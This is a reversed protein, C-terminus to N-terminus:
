RVSRQPTQLKDAAERKQARKARRGTAEKAPAKGKNKGPRFSSSGAEDAQAVAAALQKVAVPRAERRGARVFGNDGWRRNGIRINSKFYYDDFDDEEYDDDPEELALAPMGEFWSARLLLCVSEEVLYDNLSYVLFVGIIVVFRCYFESLCISSLCESGM